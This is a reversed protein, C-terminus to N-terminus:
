APSCRGLRQIFLYSRSLLSTNCRRTSGLVAKKLVDRKEGTRKLEAKLRAVETKLAAAYIVRKM